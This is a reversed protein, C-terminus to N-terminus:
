VSESQRSFARIEPRRTEQGAYVGVANLILDFNAISCRMKTLSISLNHLLMPRLRRLSTLRPQINNILLVNRETWVTNNLCQHVCSRTCTAEVSRQQGNRAPALFQIRQPLAPLSSLSCYLSSLLSSSNEWFKPNKQIVISYNTFSFLAWIFKYLCLNDAFTWRGHLDQQSAALCLCLQIM